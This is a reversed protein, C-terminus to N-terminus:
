RDKAQKLELKLPEESSDVRSQRQALLQQSELLESELGSYAGKLADHEATLM